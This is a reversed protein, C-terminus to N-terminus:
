DRFAGRLEKELLGMMMGAAVVSMTWGTEISWPAWGIDNPVGYVEMNEVDISRPWAGDIMQNGSRIQVSVFFDALNEWLKRFYEDGTAYYAVIFGQLLWNVSYLMDVVPDGNQYFIASEGDKVGSSSGAYGTDWEIYGGKEHRFRQLDETVTYLWKKHKEQKTIWYLIAVPLVLLCVNATETGARAIDPYRDMVTEIGSRGYRMYRQDGTLRYGLLLAANYAINATIGYQAGPSRAIQELTTKRHVSGWVWKISGNNEVPGIGTASIDSSYINPVDIRDPRLGDTGTSRIMYDLTCRIYPFFQRDGSFISRWLLPYLFGRTTDHHYSVNWWGSFGGRVMGRHPCDEKIQMDILMRYIGDATELDKPDRDLLYKLYYMYATEGACDLRLTEGVVHTGDAYVPPQLGEKVAYPKGEYGVLMGANEFWKVARNVCAHYDGSAGGGLTYEHRFMELIVGSGCCGGLWGVIDSLLAAWAKRPAFKARAFNALRFSCILLNPEDLWLAFKSRDTELAAINPMEYFGDPNRVYQLIPRERNLCNNVTMRDNSQEDFITGPRLGDAIADNHILVPREYRTSSVDLFTAQGIGRSFEAFVRKGKRIQAYLVERDPPFFLIGNQDTGGLIAFADYADLDIRSVGDASIRECFDFSLELLRSLDCEKNSIVLLKM